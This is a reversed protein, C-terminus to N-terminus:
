TVSKLLDSKERGKRTLACSMNIGIVREATTMTITANLKLIRNLRKAVHDQLGVGALISVNYM